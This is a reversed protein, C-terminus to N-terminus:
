LNPFLAPLYNQIINILNMIQTIQVNENLNFLLFLFFYCIFCSTAFVCVNKSYVIRNKKQNNFFILFFNHKENSLFSFIFNKCMSMVCSLLTHLFASWNTGCKNTHKNALKFFNPFFFLIPFLLKSTKIKLYM